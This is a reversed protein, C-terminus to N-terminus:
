FWHIALSSSFLNDPSAAVTDEQGHGKIKLAALNNVATRTPAGDLYANPITIAVCNGTTHGFQVLFQKATSGTFDDFLGLHDHSTLVDFEFTPKGPVRKWGGIGNVGNRDPIIEWKLGPDITFNASQVATRTTSAADGFFFGGMAKSAPAEDGSAATSPELTDRDTADVDDWDANNLEIEYQPVEGVGLGKIKVPGIAGLGQVQDEANYGIALWDLYSQTAGANMYVSHAHVIVDNANPAASLAMDLTFANANTIAAVRRVEGNGRGDGRTGVLVASGARASHGECLIATATCDSGCNESKATTPNSVGGFFYGLLTAEAPATTNSSGKGLYGSITIPSNKLGPIMAPAGHIRDQLEANEIGKHELKSLDCQTLALKVSNTVTWVNGAANSFTTNFTTGAKYRFERIRDPM